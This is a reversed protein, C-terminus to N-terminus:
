SAAAGFSEVLNQLGRHGRVVEELAQGVTRKPDDFVHQVVSARTSPVSPGSVVDPREHKAVSSVVFGRKSM